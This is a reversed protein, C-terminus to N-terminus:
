RTAEAYAVPAASDSKARSAPPDHPDGGVVESQQTPTEQPTAKSAAFKQQFEVWKDYRDAVTSPYVM